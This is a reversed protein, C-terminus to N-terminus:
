PQSGPRATALKRLSDARELVPATYQQFALAGLQARMDPHGMALAKAATNTAKDPSDVYVAAVVLVEAIGCKERLEQVGVLFDNLANDSAVATAYPLSLRKYLEPNPGFGLADELTNEEQTENDSSM